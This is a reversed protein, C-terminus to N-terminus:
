PKAQARTVDSGPSTSLLHDHGSVTHGGGAADGRGGALHELDHRARRPVDLDVASALGYRQQVYDLGHRLMAKTFRAPKAALAAIVDPSREAIPRRFAALEVEAVLNAAWHWGEAAEGGFLLKPEIKDPRDELTIYEFYLTPNGWIKEWDALAWRHGYRKGLGRADIAATAGSM